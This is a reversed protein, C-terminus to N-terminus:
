SSVSRADCMVGQFRERVEFEESMQCVWLVKLVFETSIRGWETGTMSVSLKWRGWYGRM